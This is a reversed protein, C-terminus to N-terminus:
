NTNNPRYAGFLTALGKVMGAPDFTKGNMFGGSVGAGIIPLATQLLQALPSTVNAKAQERNVGTGYEMNAKSQQMANMMQALQSAESMSLNAVQQQTKTDYDKALEGLLSKVQSGSVSGTRALTQKLKETSNIKNIANQKKLANQADTTSGQLTRLADSNYQGNADKGTNLNNEIGSNITDYAKDINNKQQDGLWWSNRKKYDAM